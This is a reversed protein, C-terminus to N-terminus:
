EAGSQIGAHCSACTRPGDSVAITGNDGRGDGHCYLNACTGKHIHAPQQGTTPVGTKGAAEDILGLVDGVRVDDGQQHDVRSLVGDRDAGVELNVKDTELEVLAEGISVHEGPQKLWRGVTAEVVSEGLEPVKIEVSM